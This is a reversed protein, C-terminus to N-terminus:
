PGKKSHTMYSRLVANIRSQYGRGFKKFWELVDEDVRISIPIKKSPYEIKADEWFSADTEPIDSYDIYEDRRNKLDKLDTKLKRM